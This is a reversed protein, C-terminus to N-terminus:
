SLGQSVFRASKVDNVRHVGHIQLFWTLHASVGHGEIDRVSNKSVLRTSSVEEPNEM